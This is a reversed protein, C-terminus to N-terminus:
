ISTRDVAAATLELIISTKSEINCNTAKAAFDKRKPGQMLNRSRKTERSLRSWFRLNKKRMMMMLKKKMSVTM